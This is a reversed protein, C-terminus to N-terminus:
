SSSGCPLPMVFYFLVFPELICVLMDNWGQFWVFGILEYGHEEKYEPVYASINGLTDLIDTIM